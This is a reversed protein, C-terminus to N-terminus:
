EAVHLGSVYHSVATIEEDTMKKVAGRMIENPDNAREGSRYSKLQTEIYQAHQGSLRPWSAAPNGQAGPGHCAMCAPVGSEKNGQQYMKEGLEVYQEPTAGEATTQSSYYAALNAVDEDSLSAAMSSMIANVRAGSRYDQLQKKLYTAHQGALKPWEPSPSNGDLGHCSQCPMATAAGAEPDGTVMVAGSSSAFLICAAAVAFRKLMM